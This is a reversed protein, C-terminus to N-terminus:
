RYKLYDALRCVIRNSAARKRFVTSVKNNDNSRLNHEAIPPSRCIICNQVFASGYWTYDIRLIYYSAKYLFYQVYLIELLLKWSM